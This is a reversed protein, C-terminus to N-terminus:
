LDTEDLRDQAQEIWQRVREVTVRVGLRAVLDDANQRALDAFTRIGQANLAQEFAPGIGRIETLPDAEKAPASPPVAARAPTEAKPAYLPRPQMLREIWMGLLLGLVFTLIRGM